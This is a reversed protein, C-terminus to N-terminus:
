GSLAARNEYVKAVACVIDDMDERSGLLVSQTLWCAEVKCAQETVPCSAANAAISNKYGCAGTYPGFRKEAFLPQEYLARTYGASAPIGEACLAQLFRDRPLGFVQPEIRFVYLHYAHLTEGRGRLLPRIGPIQALKENLYRGNADRRRTQEELAELQVSLLAAQFETMRHNASLFAHEYWAGGSIRGCDHLSRCKREMAEDNTILIGGEGSTLNKSSQFSFSGVDGLSGLKKGRYEAGHAHAADEIITLGHRRALSILADMDAAQGALHVPIIARTRPTIAEEVRVPDLCYTDPDIDVFVPAANAEIVAGATAIFTYPPVIVEDGEEIESALLAIRLSTTGNVVAIGHRADHMAAFAQEFKAAEDGSTRGWKGSRLVTLLAEEERQGFVPWGPFPRTRVPEGGAVALQNKM